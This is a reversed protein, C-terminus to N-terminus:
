LFLPCPKSLAFIFMESFFNYTWPTVVWWSRDLYSIKIVESQSTVKRSGKKIHVTLIIDCVLLVQARTPAWPMATPTLTPLSRLCASNEKPTAQANRTM